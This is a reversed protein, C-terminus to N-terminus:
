HAPAVPTASPASPAAKAQAAPVSTAATLIKVQEAVRQGKADDSYYIRVREGKALKGEIKTKPNLVFNLQSKNRGFQKLLVLQTPSSTAVTGTAQHRKEQANAFTCAIAFAVAASLVLQRAISTQRM